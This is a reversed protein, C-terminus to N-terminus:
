VRRHAPQAKGNLNEIAGLAHAKGTRYWNWLLGAAARARFRCFSVLAAVTTCDPPPTDPLWAGDMCQHVHGSLLRPGLLGVKMLSTDARAPARRWPLIWLTQWRPGSAGAAPSRETM